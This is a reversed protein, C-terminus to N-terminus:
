PVTYLQAAESSFTVKASVAVVSREGGDSESQKERKTNENKKEYPGSKNVVGNSLEGSGLNGLREGTREM